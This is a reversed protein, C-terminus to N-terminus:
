SEAHKTSGSSSEMSLMKSVTLRMATIWWDPPPVPNENERRRGAPSWTRAVWPIADPGSEKRETKSAAV